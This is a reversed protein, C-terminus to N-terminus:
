KRPESVELDDFHVTTDDKYWLGVRGEAFTKDEAEVLKQGGVFVAINIGRHEVKLTQWENPKVGPTEKGATISTRKGDVVRFLHVNKDAVKVRAVYYNGPDKYRWVIGAAQYGGGVAKIRVSVAVDKYTRGKAVAVGFAEHPKKVTYALVRGTGDKEVAWQGAPEGQTMAVEFGAPVDGVKDKDFTWGSAAVLIAITLHAM